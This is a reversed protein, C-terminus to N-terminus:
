SACRSLTLRHIRFAERVDPHDEHLPVAIAAAVRASVDNDDDREFVAWLTLGDGHRSEFQVGDLLNRPGDYLDYLWSAIRQTLGRPASLRLAGADLDALGYGLAARLFMTRLTPLSQPHTVACYAGSLTASSAERPGFWSTPVAGPPQSPYVEAADESEDISALDQELLPDPRFRALVELLCALLERGAYITRFAGRPDDWRGTFRGEVGAYQWPTWAWPAPRYGIRWVQGPRTAVALEGAPTVVVSEAM